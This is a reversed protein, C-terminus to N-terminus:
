CSRWYGSVRKGNRTHPRVYCRGGSSGSSKSRASTSGSSGSTARPATSSSSASSSNSNNSSSTAAASSAIAAASAASANSESRSKVINSIIPYIVVNRLLRSNEDDGQTLVLNYFSLSELCTDTFTNVPPKDVESSKNITCGKDCNIFVVWKNAAFPGPVPGLDKKREPVHIEYLIAKPYTEVTFTFSYKGDQDTTTTAVTKSTKENVVKVLKVTDNPAILGARYLTGKITMKEGPKRTAGSQVYANQIVRQNFTCKTRVQSVAYQSFNTVETRSILRFKYEQSQVFYGLADSYTMVLRYDQAAGIYAPDAQCIRVKAAIQKDGALASKTVLALSLEANNANFVNVKVNDGQDFPLGDSRSISLNGEECTNALPEIISSLTSNVSADQGPLPALSPAPQAQTPTPSPTTTSPTSSSSSSSSTTLIIESRANAIGSKSCQVNIVILSAINGTTFSATASGSAGMTFAKPAQNQYSIQCSDGALATIKYSVKQNPGYSPALGSIVVSNALVPLATEAFLLPTLLSLAFLSLRRGKFGYARPKLNKM